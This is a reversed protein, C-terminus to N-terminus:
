LQKELISFISDIQEQEKWDYGFMNAIDRFEVVDPYKIKGDQDSIQRLATYLHLELHEQSIDQALQESVEILYQLNMLMAFPEKIQTIKAVTRPKKEEKNVCVISQPDVHSLNVQDANILDEILKEVDKSCRTYQAAM